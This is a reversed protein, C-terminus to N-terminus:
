EHTFLEYVRSSTHLEGVNIAFDVAYISLIAVAVTFSKRQQLFLEM